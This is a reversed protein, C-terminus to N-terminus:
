LPKTAEEHSTHQLNLAQIDYDEIRCCIRRVGLFQGYPIRRAINRPHASSCLLYNHPKSYLDTIIDGQPAVKVFTDLFSVQTDSIDATFKIAPLRSNLFTIFNDLEERTHTWILFIDDIFRGYLLPQSQYTFVHTEEFDAMFLNAYSPAVRTGMATGSTQLYHQNSFQFNNKTLVLQLLQILSQNSPTTSVPRKAALQKAVAWKGELHPINTYLSTVDLTVLLSGPPIPGFSTIKPLFHTIDKIYSRTQRVLLQLFYDVFELIRETPCYQNMDM